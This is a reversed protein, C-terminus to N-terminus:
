PVTANTGTPAVTLWHFVLTGWTLQNQTATSSTKRSPRFQASKALKLAYDDADKSGSTKLLVTSFVSGQADVGAQVVTNTLIDAAPQPQLDFQSLLPRHALAGEITLESHAFGLNQTPLINGLQPEPPPSLETAGASNTRVYDALAGGLKEVSLSLPRASESWPPLNYEQPPTPFWAPGSFGHRNPLLFLTPNNLGPWQAQPDTSLYVHPAFAVAQHTIYPRGTLWFILALQGALIILIFLLWRRFPWPQPQARALMM